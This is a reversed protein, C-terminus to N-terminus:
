AFCVFTLGILKKVHCGGPQCSTTSRFCHRRLYRSTLWSDTLKQPAPVAESRVKLVSVSNSNKVIAFPSFTILPIKQGIEIQFRFQCCHLCVLFSRHNSAPVSRCHLALEDCVFINPNLKGLKSTIRVLFSNSKRIPQLPSVVPAVCM